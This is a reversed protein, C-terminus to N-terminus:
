GNLISCRTATLLALTFTFSAVYSPRYMRSGPAIPGCQPVTLSINYVSFSGSLGSMRTISPLDSWCIQCSKAGKRAAPDQDAAAPKATVSTAYARNFWTRRISTDSSSQTVRVPSKSARRANLATLFTTRRTSGSPLRFFGPQGCNGFGRGRRAHGAAAVYVHDIRDLDDAVANTLM